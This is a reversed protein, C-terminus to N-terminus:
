RSRIRVGKKREIRIAGQQVLCVQVDHAHLIYRVVHKGAKSRKELAEAHMVARPTAAADPLPACETRKPRDHVLPRLATIRAM